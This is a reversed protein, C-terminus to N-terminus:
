GDERVLFMRGSRQVFRCPYKHKSIAVRFRVAVKNKDGDYEVIEAAEADSGVFTEIALRVSGKKPGRGREAKPIEDFAVQRIVYESM